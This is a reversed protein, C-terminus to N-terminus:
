PMRSLLVESLLHLQRPVGAAWALAIVAAVGMALRHGSREDVPAPCNVLLRVRTELLTPEHFSSWAPSSVREAPGLRAIKILALALDGARDARGQAARADALCEAEAAWLRDLRAAQPTLSLFDPACHMLVRTLNDGARRHSLEHAVAADLEATTLAQRVRPAILLRPRFVGALAIGDLLPLDFSPVGGTETRSVGTAMRLRVSACAIRCLRWASRAILLAGAAALVIALGFREDADAPELRLHAPAFLLCSVVVALAVPALRLAVLMRARRVDGRAGDSIRRGCSWCVVSVVANVVAFWALGLIATSAIVTM